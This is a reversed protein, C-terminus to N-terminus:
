SDRSSGLTLPKASVAKRLRASAAPGAALRVSGPAIRTKSKDDVLVPEVRAGTRADVMVLKEKGPGSLWQNSWAGLAVVVPLLAEAKPTAVYEHRLPRKSYPVRDLLGAVVLEELKRTLTTPPIGLRAELEGFQRFGLLADRLILLLWGDGLLDLARAIPCEMEAFSSRKM